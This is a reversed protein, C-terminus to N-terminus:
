VQWWIPWKASLLERSIWFARAIRPLLAARKWIGGVENAPKVWESMPSTFFVSELANKLGKKLRAFALRDEAVLVNPGLADFLIEAWNAAVRRRVSRVYDDMQRFMIRFQPSKAARDAGFSVAAFIEPLAMQSRSMWFDCINNQRRRPM